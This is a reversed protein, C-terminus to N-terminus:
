SQPIDLTLTRLPLLVHTPLAPVLSFFTRSCSATLPLAVPCM